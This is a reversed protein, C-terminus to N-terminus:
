GRRPRPEPGAAASLKTADLARAKSVVRACGKARALLVEVSPTGHTLVVTVPRDQHLSDDDASPLPGSPGCVPPRGGDGNFFLQRARLIVEREGGLVLDVADMGLDAAVSFEIRKGPTGDARPVRVRVVAASLEPLLKAALAALAPEGHVRPNSGQPTAPEFVCAM